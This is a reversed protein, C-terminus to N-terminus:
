WGKGEGVWRNVDELDLYRIGILSEDLGEPKKHEERGCKEVELCGELRLNVM